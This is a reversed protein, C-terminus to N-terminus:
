ESGLLEAKVEEWPQEDDPNQDLDELRERLIQHQWDPLELFRAEEQPEVSDWLAQALALREEVPLELLSKMGTTM